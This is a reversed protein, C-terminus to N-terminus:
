GSYFMLSIHSKIAFHIPNNTRATAVKDKKTGDDKRHISVFAILGNSPTMMNPMPIVIEGWSKLITSLLGFSIRIPQRVCNVTMGNSAHTSVWANAKGLSNAIPTINTPQQGPPVAEFTMVKRAFPSRARETPIVAVEVKSAGSNVGNKTHSIAPVMTFTSVM